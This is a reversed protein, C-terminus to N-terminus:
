NKGIEITTDQMPVDLSWETARKAANYPLKQMDASNLLSSLIFKKAEDFSNMGGIDRMDSLSLSMRKALQSRSTCTAAGIM